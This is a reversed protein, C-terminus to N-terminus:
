EEEGSKEEQDQNKTDAKKQLDSILKDLEDQQEESLKQAVKIEEYAKKAQDISIAIYRDKYKKFMEEM